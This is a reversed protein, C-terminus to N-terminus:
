ITVPTEIELNYLKNRPGVIMAQTKSSNLALSNKATWELIKDLDYQLKERVTGWTNGSQYLLM